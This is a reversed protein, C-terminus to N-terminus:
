HAAINGKNYCKQSCTSLHGGRESIFSNIPSVPFDHTSTQLIDPSHNIQTNHSPVFCYYTKNRRPGYFRLFLVRGIDLWKSRASPWYYICIKTTWSPNLLWDKRLKRLDRKITDPYYRECNKTATWHLNHPLIKFAVWTVWSEIQPVHYEKKQSDSWNVVKGSPLHFECNVCIVWSYTTTIENHNLGGKRITM